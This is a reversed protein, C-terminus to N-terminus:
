RLIERTAKLVALPNAAQWLAGHLAVGDFGWERCRVSRSADIGGLAYLKAGQHQKLCQVLETETWDPQNAPKTFSPFIPSLLAADWGHTDVDLATIRHLARSVVQKRTAGSALNPPPMQCTSDHDKVHRGGLAYTQVLEHHQHLVVRARCAPPLTYLFADLTAISWAPKRLHYRTLGADLLRVIWQTETPYTDPPSIALIDM